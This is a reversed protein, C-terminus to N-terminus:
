QGRLKYGYTAVQLSDATTAAVILVARTNAPITWQASGDANVPIDEILPESNEPYLVGRLRWTQPLRNVIQVFGAAQWDSIPQDNLRIAALALGDGTYADDTTNWFRLMIRQGRWESLDVSQEQWDQVTGTIGSNLQEFEGWASSSPTQVLQWTMGDDLSVSLYGYDYHEDLDYWISYQLTASATPVDVVTTLTAVRHDGRGSWWLPTTQAPAGIVPVSINGHWDLQRQDPVAQWELYDAGLQQITQDHLDSPAPAPDVQRNMSTYGYRGDGLQADNLLNATAWIAFLDSFTQVDPYHAQMIKTFTELNMGANAAVLDVVPAGGAVHDEFYRVWLEAAGYHLQVEDPNITWHNLQVDPEALFARILQDSGWGARHESLMSIGEDLWGESQSVFNRQVLHQMEHLITTPYEDTDLLDPNVNVFMIERQNSYPNIATSFENSYAYYGSFDSFATNLVTVRQQPLASAPYMQELVNWGQQEFRDIAKQLDDRNLQLDSVTYVDLHASQVQLTASVQKAQNTAIDSVWFTATDGVSAPAPPALPASDHVIGWAQALALPDRPQGERRAQMVAASDDSPMAPTAAATPLPTAELFAQTQTPPVSARSSACASLCFLSCLAFFLRKQIKTRRFMCM